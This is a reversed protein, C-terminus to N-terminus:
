ALSALGREQRAAPTRASCPATLSGTATAIASPM